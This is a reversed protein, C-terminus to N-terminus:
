AALQAGYRSIVFNLIRKIEIEGLQDLRYNLDLRDASIKNIPLEIVDGMPAPKAEAIEPATPAVNEIAAPAIIIPALAVKEETQQRALEDAEAKKAAALDAAAAAQRSAEMDRMTQERALRAV